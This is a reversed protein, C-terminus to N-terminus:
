YQCRGVRSTFALFEPFFCPAISNRTQIYHEETRARESTEVFRELEVLLVKEYAIGRSIDVTHSTSDLTRQQDTM